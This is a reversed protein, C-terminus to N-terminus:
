SQDMTVNGRNSPSVAQSISMNANSAAYGRPSIGDANRSSKRRGDRGGMMSQNGGSNGGRYNNGSESSYNNNM